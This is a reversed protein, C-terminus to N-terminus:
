IVTPNNVDIRTHQALFEFDTIYQNVNGGSMKLKRLNNHAKEHIAYDIFSHRFDQELTDWATMGHSLICPNAEVKNLWTYQQKCWGKVKSGEFLALFYCCKAIPDKAINAKRNMLMFRKFQTLFQITQAQDGNFAKPPNGKLRRHKSGKEEKNDLDAMTFPDDGDGRPRRPGRGRFTESSRIPMLEDEEPESPTERKPELIDLAKGALALKTTNGQNEKILALLSDKEVGQLAWLDVGPLPDHAFTIGHHTVRIAKFINNKKQIEFWVRAFNEVPVVKGEYRLWYGTWPVPTTTGEFIQGDIYHWADGWYSIPITDKTQPKITFPCRIASLKSPLPSDTDLGYLRWDRGKSSAVSAAQSPTHGKGRSTEAAMNM